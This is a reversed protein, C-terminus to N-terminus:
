KSVAKLKGLGKGKGSGNVSSTTMAFTLIAHAAADSMQDLASLSVNDYTDCALHYCPDYQDGATGGYIAAQETTKIGEAGTFLGGVPVGVAIFPVYDTTRTLAVPETPLGQEAFYDLFVQEINKSGIPGTLSSDSGDGDDVFRVFNPSGVMDFNLYLATDKIGRKTLNDVYFQSGLLGSEKAGWWAFRVKNRPAIELESLQKAIELIAASGSGNDQIGPGEAVSDLHAGAILIRDDRGSPTDAFVNSSTRIESVADVFMRVTVGGAALEVGVDYAAGVVPVTAGPEGLTGLFASTRGEQGENFIIVGVAGATEANQAKVQFYCTGRQIVAINGPTFGDFDSAECGSTSSEPYDPPPITLDVGQAIATVDGSGSYEMTSFGEPDFYPYVTPNPAIQELEAPSVEQFWSYDFPQVTVEYGAGMMRDVIYDITEQHGASGDARTGGNADAIAQFAAQHTRVGEVTVAERLSSSDVGVAAIASISAISGALVAAGSVCWLYYKCTTM